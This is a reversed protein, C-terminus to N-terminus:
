IIGTTHNLFITEVLPHLYINSISVSAPSGIALGIRQRFNLGNFKFTNNRLIISLLEALYKTPIPKIDHNIRRSDYAETTDKLAM